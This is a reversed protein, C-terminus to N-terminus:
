VLSVKLIRKMLFVLLVVGSFYAFSTAMATGLAGYIPALLFNGIVNILIIGLFYLSHCGPRGALMLSSMFPIYGASLCVGTALVAYVLWGDMMLPDLGLLLIPIPYASSSVVLIVVAVCYIRMRWFLFFAKFEDKSDCQLMRVLQPSFVMRCVVGLLFFGEALMSAFAYVGVVSNSAFVGLILVDIKTNLEALVGSPMSKLGFKAHTVFSQVRLRSVGVRWLGRMALHSVLLFVLFESIAVGLMVYEVGAGKLWFAITMILIISPRIGQALALPKMRGQGILAAMALKTLAGFFVSFATFKLTLGLQESNLVSAILASAIFISIGFLSAAFLGILTSIFISSKADAARGRALAVFNVIANQQGLVGLQCLIIHVAFGQSFVGLGESGWGAVVVITLLLGMIASAAFGAGNVILDGTIQKKNTTM